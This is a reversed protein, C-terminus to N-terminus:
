CAGAIVEATAIEDVIVVDVCHNRAAQLMTAGQQQLQPVVVGV